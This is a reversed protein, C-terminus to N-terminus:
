PPADRHGIDPLVLGLVGPAIRRVGGEEPFHPEGDLAAEHGDCLAGFGNLAAFDRFEPAIRIETETSPRAPAATPTWDCDATTWGTLQEIRAAFGVSGQLEHTHPLAYPTGAILLTEVPEDGARDRLETALAVTMRQYPTLWMAYLATWYIMAFATLGALTLGMVGQRAVAGSARMALAFLGIQLVWFMGTSRGPLEIGTYGQQVIVFAASIALAVLLAALSKRDHILLIIAALAGIGGFVPYLRPGAVSLLKAVERLLNELGQLNALFGALDAARSPERWAPLRLGFYGHMAWNIGYMVAVALIFAACFVLGMAVPAWPSARRWDGGVALIALLVFPYVTYTLISLPALVLLAWIAVWLPAFAVIGAYLALLATGPLLTNFWGTLEAGQTMWALALATLGARLPWRDDRFAAVATLASTACWFLMYLVHLTVPDYPGPRLMWLHNIWRGESLTKWYYREWRGLLAPYDDNRVFPDAFQAPMLAAFLAVLGLTLGAAALAQRGAPRPTV